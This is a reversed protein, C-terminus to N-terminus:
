AKVKEELKPIKKAEAKRFKVEKSLEKLHIEMSNKVDEAWKDLKDMEEDFFNSDRLSIRELVTKEKNKYETEIPDTM